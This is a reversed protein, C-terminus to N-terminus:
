AGRATMAARAALRTSIVPSRVFHRVLIKASDLTRSALAQRLAVAVRLERLERQNLREGIRELLEDSGVAAIRGAYAELLARRRAAPLLGLEAYLSIWNPDPEDELPDPEGARRRKAAEIVVLMSTVQTEVLAHSFQGRHERRRIVPERLNALRYRESMRLWLDYDECFRALRFGGIAEFRDRRFTVTPHAICNYYDLGRRIAGDSAPFRVTRGDSGDDRLVIYAGGVVAIGRDQELLEVQRAIREPLAVDDADMRAIYRGRAASCLTKLAYGIGQSADQRRVIIREDRAAYSALVDPTEDTSGDDLVRLEFDTFSQGLISDLSDGLWRAGDRVPMCVSVLPTM